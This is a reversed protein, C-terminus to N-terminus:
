EIGESPALAYHTTALCNALAWILRLYYCETSCLTGSTPCLPFCSLFILFVVLWLTAIFPRRLWKPTSEITREHLDKRHAYLDTLRLQHHKSKCPLDQWQYIPTVEATAIGKPKFVRGLLTYTYLVSFEDHAPPVFRSHIVVLLCSICTPTISTQPQFAGTNYWQHSPGPFNRVRACSCESEGALCLQFQAVSISIYSCTTGNAGPLSDHWKDKLVICSVNTCFFTCDFSTLHSRIFFIDAQCRLWHTYHHCSLKHFQLLTKYYLISTSLAVKFELVQQEM